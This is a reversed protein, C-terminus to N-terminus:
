YPFFAMFRAYLGENLTACAKLRASIGTAWIDRQAAMSLTKNLLDQRLSLDAKSLQKLRLRTKDFGKALRL